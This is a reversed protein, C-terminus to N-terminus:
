GNREDTAPHVLQEFSVYIIAFGCMATFLHWAYICSDIQSSMTDEPVQMSKIIDHCGTTNHPSGPVVCLHIFM